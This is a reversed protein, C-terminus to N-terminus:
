FKSKVLISKNRLETEQPPSNIIIPFLPTRPVRDIKGNSYREKHGFLHTQSLSLFIFKIQLFLGLPPLYHDLYSLNSYFVIQKEKANINCKNQNSQSTNAYIVLFPSISLSIHGQAMEIINQHNLAWCVNELNQIHWLNFFHL